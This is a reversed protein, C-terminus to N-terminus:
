GHRALWEPSNTVELIGDPALEAIPGAPYLRRDEGSDPVDLVVHEGVEALGWLLVTIPGVESFLEATGAPLPQRLPVGLLQASPDHADAMVLGPGGGLDATLVAVM